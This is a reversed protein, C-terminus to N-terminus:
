AKVWGGNGDSKIEFDIPEQSDDAKVWGDNGDSKIEFDIPEHNAEQELRQRNAHARYQDSASIWGGKSDSVEADEGFENQELANSKPTDNGIRTTDVPQYAPISPTPTNISSM